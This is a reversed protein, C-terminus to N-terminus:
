RVSIGSLGHGNFIIEIRERENGFFLRRERTFFDSGELGIRLPFERSDARPHFSVAMLTGEGAILLFDNHYAMRGSRYMQPIVYSNLQEGLEGVPIPTLVSDRTLFYAFDQSATWDSIGTDIIQGMDTRSHSSELAIEEFFFTRGSSRGILLSTNTLAFLLGDRCITEDVREGEQLWQRPDIDCTQEPVQITESISPARIEPRPAIRAPAACAALAIAAASFFLSKIIKPKEKKFALSKKRM